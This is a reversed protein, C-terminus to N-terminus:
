DSALGRLRAVRESETDALGDRELLAISTRAHERADDRRGADAYAEALEGHYYPDSKGTSDAWSVAPELMAVAEDSRGLARLAFGVGYRAFAIADPNEQDLERAALARQFLDLARENDGDEQYAWALNNLLPAAWYSADPETEGLKLGRQTWSEMGDRDSVAIAAMHAADGALYYEGIGVADAFAAEFLPLAEEPRGSSRLMRGRELLVRVNALPSPGATEEASQLLAASAGFDGRLGEVRALQTLVEARGQPTKEADLQARLRAESGDLDDFDWLPRLRDPM